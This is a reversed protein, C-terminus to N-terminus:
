SFNKGDQPSLHLLFYSLDPIVPGELQSRDRETEVSRDILGEGTAM